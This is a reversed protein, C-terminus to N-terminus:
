DKKIQTIRSSRDYDDSHIYTEEIMKVSTGMQVSLDYVDVKGLNVRMTGYAHRLSGCVRKEGSNDYLLDCSELLKAFGKKFSKVKEGFENSFVFEEKGKFKFGNKKSFEIQREKLRDLVEWCHPQPDIKRKKNKGHVWISVGQVTKSKGNINQRITKPEIHKWKLNRSETVRLGSNGMFIIYDHLLKRANLTTENILEEGEKPKKNSKWLRKESCRYKSTKVLLNWESLNFGSRRNRKFPKSKIELVKNQSIDGCTRAYSILQRFVVDEKQLTSLSPPKKLWKSRAVIEKGNRIYTRSQSGQLKRTWYGDRWYRYDGIMKQSINEMRTDGFFEDLYNGIVSKYKKIKSPIVRPDKQLLKLYEKSVVKFPRSQINQGQDSKVIFELIIEKVIDQSGSLTLSDKGYKKLSRRIEKQNEVKIKTWYNNQGDRKFLWYSVKRFIYRKGFHSKQGFRLKNKETQKNEDM